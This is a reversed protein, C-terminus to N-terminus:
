FGKFVVLRKCGARVKEFEDDTLPEGLRWDPTSRYHKGDILHVCDFPKKGPRMQKELTNLRIELSKSM